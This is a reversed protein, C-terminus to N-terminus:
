EQTPPTQPKPRPQRNRPRNPSNAGEAGSEPSSRRPPRNQSPSAGGNEGGADSRRNRGQGGRRGRRRKNAGERAERSADNAGEAARQEPANGRAPNRERRADPSGERPSHGSGGRRPNRPPAKRDRNESRDRRPRNEGRSRNARGQEGGIDDTAVIFDELEPITKKEERPPVPHETSVEDLHYENIVFSEDEPNSIRVKMREAIVAVKIVTGKGDPTYIEKGVRPLEKRIAEYTSQEYQLCCMLRGCIGSIKTPNLSLSQEKAMKISVPHFDRMFARCCVERGCNGIGGVMRAEDRVGIQRLEIRARFVSALDRVLSRFDVRGDATFYFTIKTEDFSFHVDVLKMELGHQDIKQQATRMAEDTRGANANIQVEDKETAIRLVPKLPVVLTTHEVDQPGFVIVGDAQGSETEVIVRDGEALVLEGPSFYYTKSSSALRVGVIREM